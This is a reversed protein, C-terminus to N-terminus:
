RSPSSGARVQIRRLGIEIRQLSGGPLVARGDEERAAREQDAEVGLRQGFEFRLGAARYPCIGVAQARASAEGGEDRAQDCPTRGQADKAQPDAGAGLLIQFMEESVGDAAAYHLATRGWRDALSADAGAALLKAAIEPQGLSM